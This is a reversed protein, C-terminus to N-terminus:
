RQQIKCAGSKSEEFAATDGKAVIGDAFSCFFLWESEEDLMSKLMGSACAVQRPVVFTYGDMSELLVFDSESM